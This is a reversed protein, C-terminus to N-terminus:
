VKGARVRVAKGASPKDLTRTFEAAFFNCKSEPTLGGITDGGGSGERTVGSTAGARQWDEEM